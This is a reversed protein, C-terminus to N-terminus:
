ARAFGVYRRGQFSLKGFDGEVLMGVSRHPVKLELRESNDFEFTVYYSTNRNRGFVRTRKGVIKAPVTLLPQSNNFANEKINKIIGYGIFCLIFIFFVNFVINHFGFYGFEGFSSM